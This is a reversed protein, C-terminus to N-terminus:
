WTSHLKWKLEHVEITLCRGDKTALESEAKEDRSEEQGANRRTDSVTAEM